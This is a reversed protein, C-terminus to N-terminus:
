FKFHVEKVYTPISEATDLKFEILILKENNIDIKELM